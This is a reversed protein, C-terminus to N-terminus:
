SNPVARIPFSGFFDTNVGNLWVCSTFFKNTISPALKTEDAQWFGVNVIIAIVTLPHACRISLNLVFSTQNPAILARFELFFCITIRIVDPCAPACCHQARVYDQRNRANPNLPDCRLPPAPAGCEM